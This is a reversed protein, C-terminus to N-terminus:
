GKKISTSIASVITGDEMQLEYVQKYNKEYPGFIVTAHKKRYIVSEGSGFEQENKKKKKITTARTKRTSIHADNLSDIIADDDLAVSEQSTTEDEDDEEENLYSVYVPAEEFEEEEDYNMNNISHRLIM